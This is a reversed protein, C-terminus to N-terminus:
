APTTEKTANRTINRAAELLASHKDQEFSLWDAPGVNAPRQPRADLWGDIAARLRADHRLRQAFGVDGLALDHDALLEKLTRLRQLEGAGFLRYGAESREPDVLGASEIYRLMRPSWGTTAAAEHITLAGASM